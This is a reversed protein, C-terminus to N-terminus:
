SGSDASLGLPHSAADFFFLPDAKLNTRLAGKISRIEEGSRDKAWVSVAVPRDPYRNLADVLHRDQEGLESGFVVIPFEFKRLRNLADSLYDNGEIALLKHQASGETVLLPRAQEDGDIPSRFQQLLNGLDTNKRKRTIGSGMVVLHLAGHMFYVPTLYDKPESDAPDFCEGDWFCDCLHDYGVAGMAWYVILDYSTTFVYTQEQLVRGIPKLADKVDYYGAHVAQVAMGLALQISRYRELYLAPNEGLAEAMRIAAALEALVREFNETDLAEFLRRDLDTLGEEGDQPAKAYLLPYGFDEWVTRSLGNGLLLGAWGDYHENLEAWTALSDDIPHGEIKEGM